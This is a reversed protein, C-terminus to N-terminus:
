RIFSAKTSIGLVLYIVLVAVLLLLTLNQLSSQFVQPRDRSPQRSRQPFPSAERHKSNEPPRRASRFERRMNFSITTSPMEGFQNVQAPGVSKSFSAV